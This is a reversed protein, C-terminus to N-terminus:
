LRGNFEVKFFFFPKPFSLYGIKFKFIGLVYKFLDWSTFCCLDSLKEYLCLLCTSIFKHKAHQFHPRLPNGKYHIVLGATYWIDSLIDHLLTSYM